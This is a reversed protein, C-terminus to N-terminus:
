SAPALTADCADPCCQLQSLKLKLTVKGTNTLTWITWFNSMQLQIQSCTSEGMVNAISAITVGGTDYQSGAKIHQAQPQLNLRFYLFNCKVFNVQLWDDNLIINM